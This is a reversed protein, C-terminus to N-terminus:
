DTGYERRVIKPFKESLDVVVSVPERAHKRALEVAEEVTDPMEIGPVAADWWTMAKTKAFGTHQVCVWESFTAMGCVYDVRMTPTANPNGRKRHVSYTVGDVRRRNAQVPRSQALVRAQSVTQDHTVREPEPQAAGCLPCERFGAHIEEGCGVCKRMPADQKGRRKAPDRGAIQDVPGLTQTSDTFDCWLCDTKGEAIRMGRGAIQTYLVPSRTNRLLAILDIEPVDFGTTLAAVNVIARYFGSRFLEITKERERKPTKGTVLAARVGRELLAAKVHQAHEITVCFVMWRHRDRGLEVLEDCAADVLDTRDIAAALENIAFDGTKSDIRVGDARMRNVPRASVLPALYGSDLLTQMKIRTAIGDFLSEAPAHLWVGNGRFPTATLGIVRIRPNYRSLGDVLKRYMGAQKPNVLHCEDIIVLGIHGLNGPEMRAVTGITAVLLDFGSPDDKRGMAASLVGVRGDGVFAEIKEHNQEALEKSPVLMLARRGHQASLRCLEAVLLSKGSATPLWM